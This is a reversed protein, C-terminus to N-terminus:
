AAKWFVKRVEGTKRRVALIASCRGNADRECRVDLWPYLIWWNCYLWAKLFARFQKGTMGAGVKDNDYRATIWMLSIWVVVLTVWIGFAQLGTLKDNM